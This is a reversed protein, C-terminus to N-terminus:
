ERQLQSRGAEQTKDQLALFRGQCIYGGEGSWLVCFRYVRSRSWSNGKQKDKFVLTSGLDMIGLETGPVTAPVHHANASHLGKLMSAPIILERLICYYNHIIYIKYSLYINYIFLIYYLNYIIFIIFMIVCKAHGM